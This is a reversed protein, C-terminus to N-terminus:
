NTVDNTKIEMYKHFLYPDDSRSRNADSIMVNVMKKEKETTLSISFDYRGDIRMEVRRPREDLPKFWLKNIEGGENYSIYKFSLCNPDSLNHLIENALNILEIKRTQTKLERKNKEQQWYLVGGVAVIVIIVIIKEM